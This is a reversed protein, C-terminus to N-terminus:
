SYNRPECVGRIAGGRRSRRPAYYDTETGAILSGLAGNAITGLNGTVLGDLSGHGRYSVNHSRECLYVRAVALCMEGDNVM